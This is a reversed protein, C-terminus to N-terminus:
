GRATSKPLCHTCTQLSLVIAQGCGGKSSLNGTDMMMTTTTIPTEETEPIESITEQDGGGINVLGGSRMWGAVNGEHKLADLVGIVALLLEDFSEEEVGKGQVEM